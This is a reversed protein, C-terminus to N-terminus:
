RKLGVFLEYTGPPLESHDFGVNRADFGALDLWRLWDARAFLGNVHRDHELRLSGDRERMVLVYDVVHSSDAPDPDWSWELFRLGRGDADSGGHDTKPEFTERLHDPAFLAVGGRRCHAHATEFVRRLDSEHTMYAIADHVLVGDFERGLRVSRMDGQQHACEPNLARSVELMAPSLDVLTLEFHHKLFSANNGGGSGLELLTRLPARASACLTRRYFEAEEAYDSPPSLLPWWRALEGYM